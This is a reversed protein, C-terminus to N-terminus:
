QNRYNDAAAMHDLRTDQLSECLAKFLVQNVGDLHFLEVGLEEIIMRAQKLRNANDTMRKAMGRNSREEVTENSVVLQM